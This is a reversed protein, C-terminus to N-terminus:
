TFRKIHFHRTDYGSGKSRSQHGAGGLANMIRPRTTQDRVTDGESQERSHGAPRRQRGPASRHVASQVARARQIRPVPRAPRAHGPGLLVGQLQRAHPAAQLSSHDRGLGCLSDSTTYILRHNPHRRHRHDHTNTITPLM